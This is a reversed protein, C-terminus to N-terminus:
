EVPGPVAKPAKADDDSGAFQHIIKVSTPATAEIVERPKGYAYYYLMAEVSPHVTGEDLKEKLREQYKPRSLLAQAVARALAGPKNPTGVTRGGTKKTGKPRGPKRRETGGSPTRLSKTM